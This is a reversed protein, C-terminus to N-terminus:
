RWLDRELLKRAEEQGSYRQTENYGIIKENRECRMREEQWNVELFIFGNLLIYLQEIEKGNYGARLLKNREKMTELIMKIGTVNLRRTKSSFM